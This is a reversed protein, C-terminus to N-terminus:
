PRFEKVVEYVPGEGTLVSKILKFCDVGFEKKELRIKKINEKFKEKNEIFKVRALTAHSHFRKDKPFLEKM